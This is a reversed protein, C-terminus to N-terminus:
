FQFYIFRGASVPRAILILALLLVYGVPQLSRGIVSLRGVWKAKSVWFGLKERQELMLEFALCGVVIALVFLRQNLTLVGTNGTRWGSMSHLMALAQGIDSARFFVWGVCVLAFTVAWNLLSQTTQWLRGQPLLSSNENLGRGKFWWFVVLLGGHFAGWAVFTWNAGHWLGGILMTLFLNRYRHGRNGGLPIYLYDRLWSSLSMHWRRWFDSINRGLYPRNFNEPVSYGFLLASGRGVDTYGSFDFYIQMAFALVTIWAQLPGLYQGPGVAGFGLGVLPALNDALAIKKFLGVLILKIGAGIRAWEFPPLNDLQGVFAEYRKIPGAIQTPFFAAFLAFKLLSKVVPQGRGVDVLYHIFEFTFFSIGLPLILSFEPNTFKLGALGLAQLFNNLLFETYKYFVLVGLNGIVGLRLLWARSKPQSELKALGLGVGYNALTLGIILILYLANWSAYFIYSAVLLLWPRWRAPLLYYAVVVSPLFYAYQLTNFLM